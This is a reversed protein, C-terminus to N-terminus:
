DIPEFLIGDDGPVSKTHDNHGEIIISPIRKPFASCTATGKIRHICRNCVPAVISDYLDYKDPVTKEIIDFDKIVM